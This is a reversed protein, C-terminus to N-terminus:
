ITIAGPTRIPSSQPYHRNHANARGDGQSPASNPHLEGGGAAIHRNCPCKSIIWFNQCKGDKGTTKVPEEAKAFAFAPDPIWRMVTSAHVDRTEGGKALTWYAGRRRAFCNRMEACTGEIGDRNLVAVAAEGM